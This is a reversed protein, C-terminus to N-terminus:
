LGYYVEKNKDITYAEIRVDSNQYSTKADRDETYLTNGNIDYAQWKHVTHSPGSALWTLNSDMYGNALHGQLWQSFSAM